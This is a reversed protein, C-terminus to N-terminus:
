KHGDPHSLSTGRLKRSVNVLLAECRLNWPVEQRAHEWWIRDGVDRRLKSWPKIGTYHIVKADRLDRGGEQWLRRIANFEEPLLQAEQAFFHSIVDQDAVSGAHEAIGKVLRDRTETSLLENRIALLGTNIMLPKRKYDQFGIAQCASLRGTAEIVKEINSLFLLDSDLGLVFDYEALAFFEFKYFAANLRKPVGNTKQIESLYRHHDIERYVADIGSQRLIRRNRKSLGNNFLVIEGTFWPNLRLFTRLMVLLGLFYQDDAVSAICMKRNKVNLDKRGPAGTQVFDAEHPKKLM